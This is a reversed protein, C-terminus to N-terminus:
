KNMNEYFSYYENNGFIIHDILKIGIMDGSLKINNTLEIDEKSPSCDGSPHNHMIIVYTASLKVAEKFIERPHAISKNITGIFLLKYSILKNKTDLFVAYFYEQKLLLFNSKFYEYIKNTNNFIVNNMNKEYFVRKGFELSALISIAKSKGIGKIKILDNITTNNLDQICTGLNLVSQALDKCSIDKTGCRIIIALLEENSINAGFKLFRERPKDEDNINKVLM